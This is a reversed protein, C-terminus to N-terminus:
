GACAVLTGESPPAPSANTDEVRRAFQDTVLYRSVLRGSTGAMETPEVTPTNSQPTATYTFEVTATTEVIFGTAGDLVTVRAVSVDVGIEGVTPRDELVENHWWAREFDTAFATATEEDLTSPLVPYSLPDVSTGTAQVTPRYRESCDDPPTPAPKTTATSTTQETSTPQSSQNAQSGDTDLCGTLVTTATGAVATLLSRRSPM